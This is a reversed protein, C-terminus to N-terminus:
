NKGIFIRGRRQMTRRNQMIIKNGMQAWPHMTKIYNKESDLYYAVAALIAKKKKDTLAM